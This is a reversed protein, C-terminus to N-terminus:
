YTGTLIHLLIRCGCTNCWASQQPGCCWLHQFNESVAGNYICRDPNRRFFAFQQEFGSCQTWIVAANFTIDDLCNLFFGWFANKEAKNKLFFVNNIVIETKRLFGHEEFDKNYDYNEVEGESDEKWTQWGLYIPVLGGLFAIMQLFSLGNVIIFSLMMMLFVAKFFGITTQRKYKKTKGEGHYNSLFIFYDDFGTIYWSVIGFIVFGITTMEFDGGIL